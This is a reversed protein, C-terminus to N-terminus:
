PVLIKKEQRDIFTVVTDFGFRKLIGYASDFHNMIKSVHHADSGLTVKRGGIQQYLRLLSIQDSNIGDRTNFEFAVQNKIMKSLLEPMTELDLSIKNSLFISPRNLHALSDFLDSEVTELNTQLYIEYAELGTKFFEKTLYKGNVQHVAGIVYDFRNLSLFNEISELFQPHYGIEVGLFLEPQSITSKVRDLEDKIKQYPYESYYESNQDIELHDTIWLADCDLKIGWEAIQRISSQGDFSFNSHIHTDRIKWNTDM